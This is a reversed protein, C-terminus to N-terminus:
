FNKTQEDILSQIKRDFSCLLEPYKKKIWNRFDQTTHLIEEIYAEEKKKNRDLYFRGVDIQAASNDIFGFNTKFNVDKDGIGKQLRLALLDLLSKICAEAKQKKHQKMFSEIHKYALVGKKQIAFALDDANIDFHIGIKDVIHININLNETKELHLYLLGTQKKLLNYAIKYSEFTEKLTDNKQKIKNKRYLDLKQPLLIKKLVPPIRMHHFKFFKLIYKEDESIFIYSQGGCDYYYYPQSFFKQVKLKEEFPAKSPKSQDFLPMDENFIRVIAFGDTALHTLREIVLFAFITTSLYLVGTFIKLLIVKMLKKYFVTRKNLSIKFNM